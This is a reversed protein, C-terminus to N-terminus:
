LALYILECKELDHVKPCPKSRTTVILRFVSRRNIPKPESIKGQARSALM